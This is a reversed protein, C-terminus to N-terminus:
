WANVQVLIWLSMIMMRTKLKRQWRLNRRDTLLNRFGPINGDKKRSWAPRFSKGKGVINKLQFCDRKFHGKKECHFDKSITKLTLANVQNSHSFTEQANQLAQRSEYEQLLRSTDKEWNLDADGLTQLASLAPGYTSGEKNGFSALVIAVHLSLPITSGMASLRTLLAEMEDIYESMPKSEKYRMDHLETQPQVTTASNNTAYRENLEAYMKSPDKKDRFVTRLPKYGLVHVLFSRAKTM